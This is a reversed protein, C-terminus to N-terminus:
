GCSAFSAPRPLLDVAVAQEDGDRVIRLEVRDGARHAGVARDLDRFGAVPTGDVAVIVDGDRPYTEGAVEVTDSGARLGAREAAGGPSVGRVIAGAEVDLGLADALAPTVTAAAVGLWAYRV